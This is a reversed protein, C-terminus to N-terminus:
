DRPPDAKETRDGARAVAKLEDERAREQEAVLRNYRDSALDARAVAAMACNFLAQSHLSDPVVRMAEVVGSKNKEVFIRDHGPGIQKSTTPRVVFGVAAAVVAESPHIFKFTM